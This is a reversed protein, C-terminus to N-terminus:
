AGSKEGHEELRYSCGLVGYDRKRSEMDTVADERKTFEYFGAHRGCVYTHVKWIPTPKEEGKSKAAVSVRPNGEIVDLTVEILLKASMEKSEVVEASFLPWMTILLDSVDKVAQTRLPFEFALLREAATDIVRMKERRAEIEHRPANM